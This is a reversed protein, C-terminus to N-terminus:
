CRDSLSAEQIKLRSQLHKMVRQVWKDDPDFCIHKGTVTTLVIANIPCMGEHQIYYEKIRPLPIRKSSHGLCCNVSLFFFCLASICSTLLLLLKQPTQM